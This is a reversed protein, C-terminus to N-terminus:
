TFKREPNTLSRTSHVAPAKPTAHTGILVNTHDRCGYGRRNTHTWGGRGDPVVQAPCHACDRPTTSQYITM